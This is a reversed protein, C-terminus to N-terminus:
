VAFFNVVHAAALFFYGSDATQKEAGLVWRGQSVPVFSVEAHVLHRRIVTLLRPRLLGPRRDKGRKRLVAFIEAVGRLVPHDIKPHRVEVGHNFLKVSGADVYLHIRLRIGVPAKGSQMVRLPVRDLKPLRLTLRM